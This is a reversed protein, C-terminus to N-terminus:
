IGETLKAYNLKVEETLEMDLERKQLNDYMGRGETRKWMVNNDIEKKVM